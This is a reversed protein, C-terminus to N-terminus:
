CHLLFFLLCELRFFLCIRYYFLLFLSIFYLLFRCNQFLCHLSLLLFYFLQDGRDTLNLILLHLQLDILLQSRLLLFLIFTLDSVNCLLYECKFVANHLYLDLALMFKNRLRGFIFLQYSFLDFIILRSFLGKVSAKILKHLLWIVGVPRVCGLRLGIVILDPHDVVIDDLGHLLVRPFFFLLILTLFYLFLLVM